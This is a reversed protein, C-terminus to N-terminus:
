KLPQGCYNCFKANASLLAKGCRPCNTVIKNQYDFSRYTQQQNTSDFTNFQIPSATNNFREPMEAQAVRVYTGYGAYKNAHKYYAILSIIVIRLIIMIILIIIGSVNVNSGSSSRSKSSTNSSVSGFGMSMIIILFAISLAAFVIMLIGGVLRKKKLSLIGPIIFALEWLAILLCGVVIVAISSNISNVRARENVRSVFDSSTSEIADVVANLASVMYIMNIIWYIVLVTSPIVAILAIAKRLSETKKFEM